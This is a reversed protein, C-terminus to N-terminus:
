LVSQGEEEKLYGCRFKNMIDYVDDKTMITVDERHIHLAIRKERKEVFREEEYCAFLLRAAFAGATEDSKITFTKM